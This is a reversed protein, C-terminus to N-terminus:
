RLREIWYPGGGGKVSLYHAGDTGSITVYYDAAPGRWDAFSQDRDLQRWVEGDSLTVTFHGRPDFAYSAM